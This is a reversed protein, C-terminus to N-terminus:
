VSAKTLVDAVLSLTECLTYISIQIKHSLICHRVSLEDAAEAEDPLGAATPKAFLVLFFVYGPVQCRHRLVFPPPPLSPYGNVLLLGGPSTPQLDARSHKYTM